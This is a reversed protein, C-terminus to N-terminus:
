RPDAFNRSDQTIQDAFHWASTHWPGPWPAPYTMPDEKACWPCDPPCSGEEVREGNEYYKPLQWPEPAWRAPEPAPERAPLNWGVSGAGAAAFTWASTVSMQNAYQMATQHAAASPSPGWGQYWGVENPRGRNFVADNPEGDPNQGIWGLAAHQPQNAADLVDMHLSGPAGIHLQNTDPVYVLPSRQEFGYSSPSSEPHEVVQLRESAFTWAREPGVNMLAQPYGQISDQQRKAQLLPSTPDVERSRGCSLCHNMWNGESSQSPETMAGSCTSCVLPDATIAFHWASYMPPSFSRDPEYPTLRPDIAAADYPGQSHYTESQVTGDPSIHMTSKTRPVGSASYQYAGFAAHHPEELNDDIPWTQLKGNDLLVGKGQTGPQWHLEPKPDNLCTICAHSPMDYNRHNWKDQKTAEAMMSPGGCHVCRSQLAKRIEPDSEGFHWVSSREWRPTYPTSNGDDGFPDYTGTQSHLNLREPGIPETTYSANGMVPDEQLHLGQTNVGYVNGGRAWQRARDPSHFLYVGPEQEARNKPSGMIKLGEQMIQEHSVNRTGHYMVQAVGFHWAGMTQNFPPFSANPGLNTPPRGIASADPYDESHMPNSPNTISNPYAPNLSPNSPNTLAGPTSPNRAPNSPNNQTGPINPNFAPNSPNTASGPVSPNLQQNSPNTFAGPNNPNMKPNAPNASPAAGQGLPNNPAITNAGSQEALFGALEDAPTGPGVGQQTSFKFSTTQQIM